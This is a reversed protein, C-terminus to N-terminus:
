HPEPADLGPKGPVKGGGRLITSWTVMSIVNRRYEQSKHYQDNM